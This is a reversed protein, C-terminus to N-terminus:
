NTQEIHQFDHALQAASNLKCWKVLWGGAAVCEESWM